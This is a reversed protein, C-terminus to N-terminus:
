WRKERQSEVHGVDLQAENMGMGMLQTEKTETVEGQPPQSRHRSYRVGRPPACAAAM